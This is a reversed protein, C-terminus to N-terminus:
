CPCLKLPLRRFSSSLSLGQGVSRLCASCNWSPSNRLAKGMCVPCSRPPCRGRVRTGARTTNPFCIRIAVVGSAEKDHGLGMQSFCFKSWM